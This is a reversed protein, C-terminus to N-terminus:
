QRIRFPAWLAYLPPWFTPLHGDELGLGLFSALGAYIMRSEHELIASHPGEIARDRKCPEKFPGRCGYELKKSHVTLGAQLQYMDCFTPFGYPVYVSGSGFVYPDWLGHFRGWSWKPAESLGPCIDISGVYCSGEYFSSIADGLSIAM